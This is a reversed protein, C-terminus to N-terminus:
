VVGNGLLTRYLAERQMLVSAAEEEPTPEPPLMYQNRLSQRGLSDGAAYGLAGGGAVLGTLGLAQLLQGAKRM